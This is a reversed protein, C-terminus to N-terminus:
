IIVKPPITFFNLFIFKFILKFSTKFKIGSISKLIFKFILKKITSTRKMTKKNIIAKFEYVGRMISSITLSNVLSIILISPIDSIIAM